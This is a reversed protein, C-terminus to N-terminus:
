ATTRLAQVASLRRHLFAPAIGALLGLALTSVAGLVVTPATVQYGPFLTGLMRAM